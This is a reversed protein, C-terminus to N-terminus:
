GTTTMSDYLKIKKSAVKKGREKKGRGMWM